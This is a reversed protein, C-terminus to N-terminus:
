RGAVGMLLVEVNAWLKRFAEREAEPLKALAEPDRIGALDADAKWHDLTKAVVARDEAKGGEVVKAWAALEERLWGLAKARLGARAAEDPKPEDIGQGSGALAASCAADYRHGAKRDEGLRPDREMAEGRLRASAAYRKTSYCVQGLTLREANDKPSDEGRLLAPLREELAMLSACEQVWEGSPYTWGPRASGLEHGTRLEELAQRFRGQRRLLRGLNCHAEAYEPDLRIVERYEAEADSVRGSRSLLVGLNYHANALRPDVRIAERYSAEADSLRGSRMLLVGLSSHATADKPDLRITERYSAEADSLRGTESLLAGLNSHARALKPELRIAERFEAEADSVRGSRSLLVGLNYHANALRPDVRITERYSAEADSVRGTESLLVGLNWHARALKPELRIAERFEAEADSVRGTESLLNGLNCHARALKPELRIAERFEAEADSVRGTKLLVYGLNFHPEAYKPELRIAERFPGEAEAEHGTDSLLIGLNLHVGPSEPRLAAAATLYRAAEELRPPSAEALAMGLDQNLWFDGPQRSRARSLVGIAEEALGMQMLAWAASEAGAPSLRLAANGTTLGVLTARDASRIARRLANSAPDIGEAVAVLDDRIPEAAPYKIWDDLAGAIRAAEASGALRAIIESAPREGPSLSAERFAAAYDRLMAETDFHNDKLAAGRLRAEDLRDALRRDAEARQADAVVQAIRSALEPRAPRGALADRASEAARIARPWANADGPPARRAEDRASEARTLAEGLIRDSEALKAQRDLRFALFSGGGIAGALLISAALAATLRRARREQVARAQAEHAIAEHLIRAKQEHEARATAEVRAIEALRLREQVGALHASVLSAVAGADRPRDAAIPALCRTAIAILEPEAGSRDLRLRVDALDATIAKTLLEQSSRGTYAPEGTLIAALISGLAFVDAREDLSAVDGRAQEPPCYPPSGLFSGHGTADGGDETRVTRVTSAQLGADTPGEDRRGLVKALGWDMVQVEGFAGVMVNLPKLDRHIVGKSHAYAVAQCIQEYIKLFQPLGDTPDSREQLLKSLTRGKVLKMVFFPRGDDSRGMEHIPVIGPHQLQGCIQAEELFRRDLEPRDRHGALLIKLALDRNLDDDRCRYVAGMGGSAIRELVQYRGFRAAPDEDAPPRGPTTAGGSRRIAEAHPATEASPGAMEDSGPTLASDTPTPESM